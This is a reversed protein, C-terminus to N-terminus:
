KQPVASTEAKVPSKKTPVTRAPTRLVEVLAIAGGIFSSNPNEACYQDLHQHLGSSDPFQGLAVQRSPNAYNHGSVFGRIWAEYIARIAKNGASKTWAACSADEFWLVNVQQNQSLVATSQLMIVLLGSKVLAHM